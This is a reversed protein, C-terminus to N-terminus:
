ASGLQGGMHADATPELLQDDGACQRGSVLQRGLDLDGVRQPDAPHGQALREARDFGLAEDIAPPAAETAVEDGCRSELEVVRAEGPEGLLHAADM